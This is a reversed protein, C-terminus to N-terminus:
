IEEAIYRCQHLTTLCGLVLARIHKQKEERAEMSEDGGELTQITKRPLSVNRGQPTEWFRECHSTADRTREKKIFSRREGGWTHYRVPANKFRNSTGLLLLLCLGLTHLPGAGAQLAEHRAQFFFMYMDGVHTYIIYPIYM